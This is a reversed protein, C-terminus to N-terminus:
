ILYASSVWLLVYSLLSTTTELSRPGRLVPPIVYIMLFTGFCCFSWRKHFPVHGAVLHLVYQRWCVGPNGYESPIGEALHNKSLNQMCLYPIVNEFDYSASCRYAEWWWTYQQFIQSMEQTVEQLCLVNPSHLQGLDGIAEMREYM